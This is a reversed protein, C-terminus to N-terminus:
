IHVYQDKCLSKPTVCNRPVHAEYIYYKIWLMFCMEHKLERGESSSKPRHPCLRYFSVNNRKIANACSELMSSVSYVHNYTRKSLSHKHESASDMITNHALPSDQKKGGNKFCFHLSILKNSVNQCTLTSQFCSEILWGTEQQKQSLTLGFYSHGSITTSDLWWRHTLYVKLWVFSGKLFLLAPVINLVCSPTFSKRCQM